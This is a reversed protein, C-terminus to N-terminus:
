KSKLKRLKRITNDVKKRNIHLECAIHDYTYGEVRMDVIRRELPDLKTKAICIREALSKEHESEHMIFDEYTYKACVDAIEMDLSHISSNCIGKYTLGGRYHDILSRRYIQLYFTHFSAAGDERFTEVAQLLKMRALQDFDDQTWIHAKRDRHSISFRTIKIYKEVLLKWADDDNQHVMYILEYDNECNM